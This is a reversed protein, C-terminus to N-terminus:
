GFHRFEKLTWPLRECVFGAAGPHGGGGYKMAIDSVKVTNSYLHVTYKKGDYNVPMLVEYQGKVSDFLKSGAQDTHLVICRHGEWELPYSFRKVAEANSIRQYHRIARGQQQIEWIYPESFATPDDALLDLWADAEPNQAEISMGSVFDLVKEDDDHTWRDWADILHLVTPIKKDRFFYEWTLWAGCRDTNACVMAREWLWKPAKKIASEHHDIWIIHYTREILRGWDGSSQLSFDVIIVPEDTGIQELPLPSRYDMEIFRCDPHRRYVIAAACRGDLDNHHLCIM